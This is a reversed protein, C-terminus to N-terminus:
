KGFYTLYDKAADKLKGNWHQSAAKANALTVDNIYRLRKLVTFANIRTEFEYKPGSYSILEPLFDTKGETIAIELWKMRINLGRWGTLTKTLDLYKDTNEPFSQCLNQLALEQNLYSYDQLAKEVETKLSVPVPSVDKLVAKRVNADTDNLAQRFLEISADTRDSSLQDIIESKTLQFTEKHFCDVLIATKKTVPFSRLAVLADYRDIMEPANLAQASLEEFGKDFNVKKVVKRGPDFLVYDITRKGPNPIIIEHTKNEIWAVLTDSHSDRYHVEFRIPMKFLGVMNNTEQVQTVTIHTARKGTTDDLVTYSVKYEPEGGHLIWEEFFWNYPKGTADYICRLFDSTQAYGFSYRDIYLKIADKFERDGMVDRLMGLVLSGKQYIRANGGMSSAVPYNNTKAANLVLTLEDNMVNQYYDKGFVSKEFIKGYYTAFSETLWVDKNVLHAICNGFWQHAMEHANTNIYNRQWYAHPDIFIFDGFVTSTTTEMAGYMYDIVPAERYLPYPYKVGTEKELFDMMAETYQYTSQVKSEQGHYYWFELPVGGASRSTKYDYDGIVLSTSFYPHDKAMRYHWTRTSDPNDKVEVREGNAFVKYNRNFTYYMDMTIRADIYPLWGHPRHAWIEKRKGNEEPRWGVFYIAGSKPQATYDILITYETHFKLLSSPLYIVLNSGKFKWDSPHLTLAIDKGSILISNVKFEPANFVISDTKYRNPTFTFETKAIVLNEEPKFSVDARIHKLTIILDTPIGAPDNLYTTTKEQGVVSIFALSAL